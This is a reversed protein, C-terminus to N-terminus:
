ATPEQQHRPGHVAHGRHDGRRGADAHRGEREFVGVNSASACCRSATPSRSSTTCTTRSSCSASGRSPRPAQRPRAGAADPRRRARRDARRPHRAQLEVHVAKAVAVSQRQGGSLSAVPQRVSRITTVRSARSRRAGDRQEMSPEDLRHLATPTRAARPVHEPRRRPQRVARPGPLRGRDRAQGRGEPRPDAVPEGDFLVEGEDIPHIGAICKILTSKGAGNDGVLAM